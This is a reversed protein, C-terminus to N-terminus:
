APTQYAIAHVEATATAAIASVEPWRQQLCLDFSDRGFTAKIMVIQNKELAIEADIAAKQAGHQADAAAKQAMNTAVSAAQQFGDNMKKFFAM